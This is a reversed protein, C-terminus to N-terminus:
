REDDKLGLLYDASVRFHACLLCLRDFSTTKKGSEMESVQNASVGLVAGVEAQSEGIKIRLKKVRHGFLEKQFM